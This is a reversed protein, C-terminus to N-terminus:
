LCCSARPYLLSPHLCFFVWTIQRIARIWVWTRREGTESSKVESEMAKAFAEVYVIFLYFVPNSAQKKNCL